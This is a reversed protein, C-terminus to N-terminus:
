SGPTNQVEVTETWVMEACSRFAASEAAVLTRLLDRMPGDRLGKREVALCNGRLSDAAESIKQYTEYSVNM